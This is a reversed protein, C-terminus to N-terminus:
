WQKAKYRAAEGVSMVYTSYDRPRALRASVYGSLARLRSPRTALRYCTKNPQFRIVVGIIIYRKM